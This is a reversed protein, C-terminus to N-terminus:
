RANRGWISKIAPDTQGLAKVAKAYVEIKTKGGSRSYTAREVNTNSDLPGTHVRGMLTFLETRGIEVGDKKIIFANTNFPSGTVRVEDAANSIYTKGDIEVFPLPEGGAISSPRLFPGIRGKAANTNCNYFDTGCLAGFDETAFIRKDGPKVTVPIVGYPHIIEYDGPQPDLIRIRVRAFVLQDGQVVEDNAFAAELALTLQAENGTTLQTTSSAAFWFSEGPFNSDFSIPLDPRPVDDPTDTLLCLGSALEAGPSPLCLDLALGNTDQYYKPFFGTAQSTPGTLNLEAHASLSAVALVAALLTLKMKM